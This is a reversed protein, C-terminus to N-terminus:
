KNFEYQSKWTETPGLGRNPTTIRRYINSYSGFGLLKLIKAADETGSGAFGASVGGKLRLQCPVSKATTGEIDLRHDEGSLIARRWSAGKFSADENVIVVGKHADSSSSAILTALITRSPTLNVKVILNYTHYPNELLGM